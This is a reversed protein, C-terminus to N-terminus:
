ISHFKQIPARPSADAVPRSGGAVPAGRLGGGLPRGSGRGSPLDLAVPGGQEKRGKVPARFPGQCPCPLPGVGGEVM